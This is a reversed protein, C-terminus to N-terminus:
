LQLYIYKKNDISKRDDKCDDCDDSPRTDTRLIWPQILDVGNVYQGNTQDKIYDRVREGFKRRKWFATTLPKRFSYYKYWNGVSNNQLDMHMERCPNGGYWEYKWMAFQSAAASYSTRVLMATFTHKFANSPSNNVHTGFFDPDETLNIAYEKEIPYFIIGVIGRVINIPNIVVVYAFWPALTTKGAGSVSPSNSSAYDTLEQLSVRNAYDRQSLSDIGKLYDSTTKISPYQNIIDAIYLKQYLSDFTQYGSLDNPNSYEDNLTDLNYEYSNIIQYNDFIDQMDDMFGSYVVNPFLENLRQELYNHMGIFRLTSDTVEQNNYEFERIALVFGEYPVKPPTANSLFEYAAEYDSQTQLEPATSEKKCSNITLIGCLSVFLTLLVRNM